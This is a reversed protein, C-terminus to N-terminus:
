INRQEDHEALQLFINCTEWLGNYKLTTDFIYNQIIEDRTWKLQMERLLDKIVTLIQKLIRVENIVHGRKTDVRILDIKWREDEIDTESIYKLSKMFKRLRKANTIMRIHNACLAILTADQGKQELIVVEYRDVNALESGCQVCIAMGPPQSESLTM